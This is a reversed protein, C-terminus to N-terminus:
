DHRSILRRELTETMTQTESRGNPQKIDLKTVKTRRRVNGAPDTEFAVSITGSIIEGAREHLAADLSVPKNLLEGVGVDTEARARRIAESDVPMEFTFIAGDPGAEKRALKGSSRADTGRYQTGDRLDTSGLDYSQVMKIVSKPDCEIRFANWTFILHGCVKRSWGAAKLWDDVRTELEAGNLLQPPGDFPKFVRAPFQWNSAREGAKATNPLDYELELGDARVGIVREIISDKDHTSGSSRDSGQQASDRISTLEYSDGVQPPLALAEARVVVVPLLLAAVMRSVGLLKVRMSQESARPRDAVPSTRGAELLRKAVGLQRM